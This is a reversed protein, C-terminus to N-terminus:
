HPRIASRTTRSDIFGKSLMHHLVYKAESVVEPGQFQNVNV